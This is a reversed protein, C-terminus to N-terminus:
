GQRIIWYAVPALGTNAGVVFPWDARRARENWAEAISSRPVLLEGYPM